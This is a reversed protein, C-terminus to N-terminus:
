GSALSNCSTAVDLWWVRDDAPMEGTNPSTNALHRCELGISACDCTPSPCIHLKAVFTQAAYRGTELTFRLVAGSHPRDPSAYLLSHDFEM